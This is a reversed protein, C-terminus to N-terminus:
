FRVERPPAPVWFGSVMSHISAGVVLVAAMAMVASLGMARRNDTEMGIKFAIVAGVLLAVVLLAVLGM